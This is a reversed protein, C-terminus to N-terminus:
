SSRVVTTPYSVLREDGSSISCRPTRVYREKWSSSGGPPCLMFFAALEFSEIAVVVGNVMLFDLAIILPRLKKPPRDTVSSEDDDEVVVLEVRQEESLLEDDASGEGGSGEEGEGVPM